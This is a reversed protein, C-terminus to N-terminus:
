FHLEGAASKGENSYDGLVDQARMLRAEPLMWPYYEGFNQPLPVYMYDRM